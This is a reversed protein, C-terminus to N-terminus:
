SVMSLVSREGGGAFVEKGIGVICTQMGLIVEHARLAMFEVTWDDEAGREDVGFKSIWLYIARRLGGVLCQLIWYRM